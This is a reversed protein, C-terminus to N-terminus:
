RSFHVRITTSSLVATGAKDLGPVFRKSLLCTRAANGFGQWKPTEAVVAASSVGGDPKIVVVLTTDASDDDASGPFFGKCANAEELKPMRSLNAAPVITPGTPAVFPTGPAALTKGTTVVGGVKAGPLGVDATGGKAVVGSGYSTGNPDTVFSVPEDGTSKAGDDKAVLLNGAKAAAPAKTTPKPLEKGTELTNAPSKPAIPSKVTTPEPEPTELEHEPPPPAPPAPLPAMEIELPPREDRVVPHEGRYAFAALAHLGIAGLIAVTRVATGRREAFGFLGELAAERPSLASQGIAVSSM